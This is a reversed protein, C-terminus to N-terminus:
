AAKSAPIFTKSQASSYPSPRDSSYRPRASPVFLAVYDENRLKSSSNGGVAAPRSRMM